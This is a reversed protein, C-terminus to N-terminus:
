KHFEEIHVQLSSKNAAKHDCQICSYKIKGQVSEKQQKLLNENTFQQNCKNFIDNTICIEELLISPHM